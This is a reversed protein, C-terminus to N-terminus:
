CYNALNGEKYEIAVKTMKEIIDMINNKDNFYSKNMKKFKEKKVLNVLTYRIGWPYPKYLLRQLLNNLLHEEIKENNIELFLEQYLISYSETQMCPYRLANLLAHILVERNNINLNTLLYAYFKYFEEKSKIKNKAMFSKHKLGWYIVIANLIKNIEKENDINDFTKVLDDLHIENSDNIYKDILEKHGSKEIVSVMDVLITASKEFAEQLQSNQEDENESIPIEADFSNPVTSLIMNKLQLYNSLNNSLSIIMLHYYNSVFEPYTNCLFFFFKYIQNLFIVYNYHNISKEGLSDLYSLIDLILLCYKEYKETKEKKKSHLPTELFNSVFHHASLLDLWAMTFLQYNLPSLLKLIEIVKLLYNIKPYDSDLINEENSNQDLLYILNYFLKYYTRQDFNKRAKIYDKHFYSYIGQLIHSFIKLKNGKDKKIVCAYLSYYIYVSINKTLCLIPKIKIGEPPGKICVSCIIQLYNSFKDECIVSNKAFFNYEKRLKNVDFNDYNKMSFYILTEFQHMFNNLQNINNQDNTKKIASKSDPVYSAFQSDRKFFSFYNNSNKDIYYPFLDNLLLKNSKNSSIVINYIKQLLDRALVDVENNSLLDLFYNEYIKYDILKKRIFNSHLEYKYRIFIDDYGLLYKTIETSIESHLKVWGKLIFSYVNLLLSNNKKASNIAYKLTNLSLDTALDLDTIKSEGIIKEICVLQQDDNYNNDAKESVNEINKMCLDYNNLRAKSAGMNDLVEKLIRYVTNLFTYKTNDEYSNMTDFIKGFNEYIRYANDSINKENPQLETPINKIKEKFKKYDKSDILSKNNQKRKEIEEKFIPNEHLIKPAVISIEKQIYKLGIHLFESNPQQKIKTVTDEKLKRGKLYKDFEADVQTKLKDRSNVDSLSKVLIKMTNEIAASYKNENKEFMFDKNVITIATNISTRVSSDIIDPLTQQLSSTMIKGLFKIVFSQNPHNDSIIESKRNFFSANFNTDSNFIGLLNNIYDELDSIEEYLFNQDIEYGRNKYLNQSTKKVHYKDLDKTITLSSTDVDITKFLTKIEEKISNDISSKNCLEWLLCLIANIWPNKTHFVKSNKVYKFVKCIFPIVICLKGNEYSSFILEKFDLDKAFIPRNKSILSIGLWAGLSKLTEKIKKESIINEPPNILYHFYVILDKIIQKNLDRNDIQNLIDDYIQFSSNNEQILKSTVFFQSFWKVIKDEKLINKLEKIKEKMNNKNVSGFLFKIKNMIEETPSHSQNNENNNASNINECETFSIPTGSLRERLNDYQKSISPDSNKSNSIGMANKEVGMPYENGENQGKEKNKTENFQQLLKQYLDKENKIQPVEILSNMFNPWISIKDIFQSLAITGFSYLPGKGTKIGELIFKLAITKIIGDILKNNIAKGFLEAMIKNEKEPYQNLFRYEDFLSHISLAYIENEKQISSKKYNILKNIVDDVTIEGNFMSSLLQNSEKEIEESNIPQVQLEDYIEFISKYIEQIYKQTKQSLKITSRSRIINDLIIALSELNLQAKELVGGKNNSNGAQQILNKKIYDLLAELFEDGIKSIREKLWQELNLSERKAAFIGLNVSFDYYKSNVLLPLSENLKTNAIEFINTLNQIDTDNEWMKAIISVILEKNTNWIEDILKQNPNKDTLIQPIVDYILEDYLFADPEPTINVLVLSFLEPINQIPWKFIEKVSNYFEGKSLNLLCKTLDTIRWNEILFTNKTNQKPKIKNILDDSIKVGDYKKLAFQSNESIEKNNIMFDIFEIQNIENDWKNFILNNFFVDISNKSEEKFIHLKFLIEILFDFTKKAKISFSPDDFSNLINNIDMNQIQSKFLDYIKDLDWKLDKNLQEDLLPKYDKTNDAENMNLSELFIKNLEKLDDDFKISSNNLMFIIFNSLRKENIESNILDSNTINIGNNIIFPGLEIILKELEIPDENGTDLIKDLDSIQPIDDASTPNFEEDYNLFYKTYEEIQNKKSNKDDNDEGDNVIDLITLIRNVTSETLNNIKKDKYIEKCKDLLINKAEKQYKEVDCMFFTIILKMQNEINLKCIKNLGNFIENASGTNKTDMLIRSFIEIFDQREIFQPFEQLFYQIKRKKPNQLNKLDKFDIDNFLILHFNRDFDIGFVESMKTIEPQIAKFGKKNKEQDILLYARILPAERIHSIKM